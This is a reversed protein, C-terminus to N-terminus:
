TRSPDRVLNISEFVKPTKARGRPRSAYSRCHIAGLAGSTALAPRACAISINPNFNCGIVVGGLSSRSIHVSLPSAGLSGMTIATPDPGVRQRARCPTSTSTSSIQRRDSHFQLRHQAHFQPQFLSQMQSACRFAPSSALALPRSSSSAAFSLSAM